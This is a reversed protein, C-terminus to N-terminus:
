FWHTRATDELEQGETREVKPTKNKIYHQASVEVSTVRSFFSECNQRRGERRGIRYGAARGGVGTRSLRYPPLTIRLESLKCGSNWIQLFVALAAAVNLSSSFSRSEFTFARARRRLVRLLKSLYEDYSPCCSRRRRGRHCQHATPQQSTTTPSPKWGM